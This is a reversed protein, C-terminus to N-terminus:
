GLASAAAPEWGARGLEAQLTSVDDTGYLDAVLQAGVMGERYAFLAQGLLSPPPAVIGETSAHADWERERGAAVFTARAGRAELGRRQTADVVGTDVLRNRAVEVSVGFRESVTTVLAAGGRGDVDTLPLGVVTSRGTVQLAVAKVGQDPALLHAAFCDARLENLDFAGGGAFDAVFLKVDMFLLHSLEHALTFRQRGWTDDANILAVSRTSQASRLAASTASRVQSVESTTVLLGHLGDPLPEVAVDLGFEAEAMTILDDIPDVGLGLAERVRGALQQGARKAYGTTPREVRVDGPRAEGAVVRGLQERVRVLHEARAFPRVLDEGHHARGLRAALSLPAEASSWGLLESPTAALAEALLALEGATLKRHGSLLRSMQTASLGASEALEAQTWGREKLADSIRQLVLSTDSM